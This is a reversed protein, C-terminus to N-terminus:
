DETPKPMLAWKIPHVVCDSDIVEWYYSGESSDYFLNAPVTSLVQKGRLLQEIVILYESNHNRNFNEQQQADDPFQQAKYDIWEIM